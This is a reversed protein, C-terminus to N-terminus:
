AFRKTLWANNANAEVIGKLENHEGLILKMTLRMRVVDEKVGGYDGRGFPFDKDFWDMVYVASHQCFGAGLHGVPDAITWGSDNLTEAVFGTPFKPSMSMQTIVEWVKRIKDQRPEVDADEYYPEVHHIVKDEISAVLLFWLGCIDEYPLYIAFAPPLAWKTPASLKQQTCTIKMAMMHILKSHVTRFPCLSQFDKRKGEFDDIKFLVEDLDNRPHFIYAAIHSQDLTLNMAPTLPFNTKIFKSLTHGTPYQVVKLKETRLKLAGKNSCLTLENRRPKMGEAKPVKMGENKPKFSLMRGVLGAEESAMASRVMKMGETKVKKGARRRQQIDEEDSSPIFVINTIDESQSLPSMTNPSLMSKRGSSTSPTSFTTPSFSAKSQEQLLDHMGDVKNMIIKFMGEVEDTHKGTKKVCDKCHDLFSRMKQMNEEYIEMRKTQKKAIGVVEHLSSCVKVMKSSLESMVDEHNKLIDVVMDM